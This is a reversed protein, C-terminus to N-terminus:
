GVVPICNSILIDSSTLEINFHRIVVENSEIYDGAESDKFVSRKLRKVIENKQNKDLELLSAELRLIKGSGYSCSFEIM